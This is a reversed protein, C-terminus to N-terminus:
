KKKKGLKNHRELTADKSNFFHSHQSIFNVAVQKLDNIQFIKKFYNNYQILGPFQCIENHGDLLSQFFDSGSRSGAVLLVIKM